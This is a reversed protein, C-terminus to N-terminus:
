FTYTLGVNAGIDVKDDTLPSDKQTSSLWEAKTNAFAGIHDTFQYKGSVSVFPSYSSKATYTDIGTKTSEQESVGFYYQNYDDSYWNVGFKPYVTLKDDAFKFLSRHALSVTQGGSRDMMDTGAKIEFGGVPTIRMYSLVINASSKRSNLGKLATTTADDPEFHRSEYGAGVRFWNESDKHAYFGLESGEAYFYDNDYLVLPVAGVKDDTAYAHSGFSALAGITLGDLASTDSQAHTSLSLSLLALSLLSKKM